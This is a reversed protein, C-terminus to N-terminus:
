KRNIGNWTISYLEEAKEELENSGLLCSVNRNIGNWTISYLEEAKEELENPTLLCSVSKFNLTSDQEEHDLPCSTSSFSSKSM